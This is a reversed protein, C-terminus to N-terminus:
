DDDHLDDRCCIGHVKKVFRHTQHGWHDIIRMAQECKVKPLPGGGANTPYGCWGCRYLRLIM